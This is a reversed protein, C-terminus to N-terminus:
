PANNKGYEALEAEFDKLEMRFVPLGRAHLADEFEGRTAGAFRAATPMALRGAAFLRCALELKAEAETLGAEALQEDTMLLPM